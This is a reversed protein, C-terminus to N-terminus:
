NILLEYHAIYILVLETSTCQQMDFEYTEDFAHFKAQYIMLTSQIGLTKSINSVTVYHHMMNM